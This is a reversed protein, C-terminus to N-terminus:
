MPMRRARIRFRIAVPDQVQLAGALISYPVIGFSTQALSGRSSWHASEFSLAGLSVGKADLATRLELGQWDGVTGSFTGELRASAARV